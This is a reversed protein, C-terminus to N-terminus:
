AFLALRQEPSLADIAAFDPAPEAQAGDPEPAAAVLAAWDLDATDLDTPDLDAPDLGTEDTEPASAGADDIDAALDSVPLFVLDEHLALDGPRAVLAAATVAPVELSIYRDIDSQCLDSPQAEDGAGRPRPPAPVRVSETGWIAIMASLRDELYRLTYVIRATRQATLDQFSCATYIATAHRDLADCAAADVDRERLIWAAEQIAEASGLIDSTAQETQHVIGDLALSAATLRTEDSNAASIAAIEAKTRSIADAMDVLNGHLHGFADHGRDQSVTRELRAIAGLLTETDAGRNRRAHEALFWRGRETAGITAAIAEYEAPAHASPTAPGSM